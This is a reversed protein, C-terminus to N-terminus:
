NKQNEMFSKSADKSPMKIQIIKLAYIMKSVISAELEYVCSIEM